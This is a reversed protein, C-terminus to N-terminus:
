SLAKCLLLAAMHAGELATHEPDKHEHVPSKAGERVTNRIQPKLIAMPLFDFILISHTCVYVCICDIRM